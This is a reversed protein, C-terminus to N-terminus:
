YSMYADRVTIELESIARMDDLERAYATPAADGASDCLSQLERKYSALAITLILLEKDTVEIDITHVQTNM